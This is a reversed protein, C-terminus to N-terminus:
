CMDQFLPITKSCLFIVSGEYIRIICYSFRADELDILLITSDNRDIHGYYLYPLILALHEDVCLLKYPQCLDRVRKLIPLQENALDKPIILSVNKLDCYRLPDLSTYLREIVDCVMNPFFDNIWGSDIEIEEGGEQSIVGQCQKVLSKIRSEREEKPLKLLQILFRFSYGQEFEHLSNTSNLEHNLCWNNEPQYASFLRTDDDLSKDYIYQKNSLIISAFLRSGYLNISLNM